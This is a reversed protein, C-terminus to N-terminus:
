FEHATITPLTPPSVILFDHSIPPNARIRMQPVTFGSPPFLDARSGAHFFPLGAM